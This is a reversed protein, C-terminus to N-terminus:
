LLLKLLSMTWVKYIKIINYLHIIYRCIYLSYRYDIIYMNLELFYFLLMPRHSYTINGLYKIYLQYEGQMACSFTINSTNLEGTTKWSPKRTKLYRWCFIENGYYRM